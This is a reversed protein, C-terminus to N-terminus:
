ALLGVGSNAGTLYVREGNLALSKTTAAYPTLTLTLM